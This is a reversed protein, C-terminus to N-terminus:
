FGSLPSYYTYTHTHSLYITPTLTHTHSLYITHTLTLTHTHTLSLTHCISLSHSQSITLTLSLSHFLSLSLSLSLSLIVSLLSDIYTAICIVITDIQGHRVEGEGQGQSSDKGRKLLESALMEDRETLFVPRKSDLDLTESKTKKELTNDAKVPAQVHAVPLSTSVPTKNKQPPLPLTNVPTIIKKEGLSQSPLKYKDKENEKEKDIEKVKDTKGENEGKEREKEKEREIEEDEEEGDLYLLERMITDFPVSDNDTQSYSFLFPSYYM